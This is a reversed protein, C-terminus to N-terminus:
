KYPSAYQVDTVVSNYVQSVLIKFGRWLVFMLYVVFYISHTAIYQQRKM